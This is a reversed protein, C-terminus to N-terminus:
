GREWPLHLALRDPERVVEAGALDSCAVLRDLIRRASLCM